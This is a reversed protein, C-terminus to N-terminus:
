EVSIQMRILSVDDVLVICNAEGGGGGEAVKGKAASSIARQSTQQGLPLCPILPRESIVYSQSTM